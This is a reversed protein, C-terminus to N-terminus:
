NGQENDIYSFTYGKYTKTTGSTCQAIMHYNFGYKDSMAKISPTTDILEGDKFMGVQKNKHAARTNLMRTVLSGYKM